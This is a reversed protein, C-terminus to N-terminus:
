PANDEQTYTCVVYLMIARFSFKLHIALGRACKGLMNNEGRMSGAAAFAVNFEAACLVPYTHIGCLALRM